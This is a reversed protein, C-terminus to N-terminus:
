GTVARLTRYVLSEDVRRWDKVTSCLVAELVVAGADSILEGDIYLTFCDEGDDVWIDVNFPMSSVRLVRVCM